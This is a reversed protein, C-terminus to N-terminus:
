RQRSYSSQHGDCKGAIELWAPRQLFGDPDSEPVIRWLGRISAVLRHRSCRSSRQWQCCEMGCDSHFRNKGPM